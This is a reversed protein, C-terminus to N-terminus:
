TGSFEITGDKRCQEVFRHFSLGALALWALSVALETIALLLIASLPESDLVGRVAELGNTVPLFQTVTQVWEPWFATPVHVGCFAIIALTTFNSALNRLHVARLVIGALVLLFCYVSFGTLTILPIVALAQPWPMSVGFVPSLLFLAASASATGVFVGFLSRGFFVLLPPVPSAVQLPFTGWSREWATSALVVSAELVIISVANGVLLYRTIEDDAFMRGAMAFFSVQCLVRVLWGFFWTRWTYLRRFDAFGSIIAGGLIRGSVSPNLLSTM